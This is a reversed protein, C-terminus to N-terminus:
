TFEISVGDDVSVGSFPVDVILLNDRDGQTENRYKASPIGVTCVNGVVTGLIAQMTRAQGARLDAFIDRTAVFIELPNMAGQIDRRTIVPADFGETDNPDDPLAITNNLNVSFQQLAARLPVYATDAADVLVPTANLEINDGTTQGAIAPSITVSNADVASAVYSVANGRTLNLVLDGVQATSLAGAEVITTTNTGADAAAIVINALTFTSGTWSAFRLPYIIGTSVDVLRLTGTQPANAPIAVDTVLTPTGIIEGGALGRTTEVTFRGDRWPAPRVADFTGSPIAVDSKDLFRGTFTFNWIGLQRTVMVLEANGRCGTIKWLLGDRYVYITASKIAVSILSYAVSTSAIITPDLGCAQLLPDVEPATGAAGSGKLYVQITIQMPTGGIIPEGVDLAGSFENSEVIDPQPTITVENALIADSVATPIPDVGETVELKALVLTNRVSLAM